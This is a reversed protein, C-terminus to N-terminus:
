GWVDMQSTQLKAYAYGEQVMRAAYRIINWQAIAHSSMQLYFNAGLHM